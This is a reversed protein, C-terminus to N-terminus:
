HTYHNFYATILSHIFYYTIIIDKGLTGELQKEQIAANSAENRLRALEEETEFLKINDHELQVVREREELLQKELDKIKTENVTNIM